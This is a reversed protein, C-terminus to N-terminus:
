WSDEATWTYALPSFRAWGMEPKSVQYSEGRTHEWYGIILYDIKFYKKERSPLWSSCISKRQFSNWLTSLRYCSWDWGLAIESYTRVNKALSISEACSELVSLLLSISCLPCATRIGFYIHFDDHTGPIEQDTPLQIVQWYFLPILRSCTSIFFNM